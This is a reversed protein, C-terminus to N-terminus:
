VKDFRPDDQSAAPIDRPKIFLVILTLPIFGLMVYQSYIWFYKIIRLNYVCMSFMQNIATTHTFQSFAETCFQTVTMAEVLILATNFLMASMTTRGVEMPYIPILFFFRMGFKFTGKMVCLLLYFAMIGYFITGLMGWADNLKIAVTNLFPDIPGNPPMYIIIHLIWMITVGISLFGLVLKAHAIFLKVGKFSYSDKLRQYEWDLLYVSQRFQNLKERYKRAPIKGHVRKEKLTEGVKKLELVQKALEHKHKTFTDESITRPRYKFDAILDFPLAALGIGGMIVMLFWGFFTVSSIVYLAPSVRINTNISSSACQPCDSTPILDSISGCLLRQVPVEAVGFFIYTVVFFITFIILVVVVGCIGGRIQKCISNNEAEESEYYFMSFPVVIIALAAMTIYVVLWIIDMPIEGDPPGRNAVDLPLMLISCESLELSVLVVAKAAWAAFKDDIHQFYVIFYVNAALLVIPFVIMLVLLWINIM